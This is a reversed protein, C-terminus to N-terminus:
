IDIREGRLHKRAYNWVFRFIVLWTVWFKRSNEQRESGRRRQSTHMRSPERKIEIVGRDICFIHRGSKWFATLPFFFFLHRGPRWRCDLLNFPQLNNFGKTTPLVVYIPWDTIKLRPPPPPPSCGPPAHILGLSNEKKKKKVQETIMNIFSAQYIPRDLKFFFILCLLNTNVYM